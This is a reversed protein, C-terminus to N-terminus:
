TVPIIMIDFGCSAEDPFTFSVTLDPVQLCSNLNRLSDALM